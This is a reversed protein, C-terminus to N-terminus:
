AAKKRIEELKKELLDQKNPFVIGIGFKSATVFNLAEYIVTVQDKDLQTTSDTNYTNKQVPRWLREKIASPSWPICPNKSIAMLVAKMDWGAANLATCLWQFYLHLSANQLMTRIGKDTKIIAVIVDHGECDKADDADLPSYQPTGDDLHGSLVLALEKKM